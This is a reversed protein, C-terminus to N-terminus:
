SEGTFGMCRGHERGAWEPGQLMAAGARQRTSGERVTPLLDMGQIVPLCEMAPIHGGAGRCGPIFGAILTLTEEAEERGDASAEEEEEELPCLADGGRQRGKRITM